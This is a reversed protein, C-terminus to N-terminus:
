DAPCFKLVWPSVKPGSYYAKPPELLAKTSNDYQVYDGKWELSYLMYGDIPYPGHHDYIRKVLEADTYASDAYNGDIGFEKLVEILDKDGRAALPLATRILELKSPKKPDIRPKLLSDQAIEALQTRYKEPTLSIAAYGWLAAYPPGSKLYDAFIREADIRRASESQLLTNTASWVASFESVAKRAANRIEENKGNLGVKVARHLGYRVESWLPVGLDEPRRSQMRGAVADLRSGLAVAIRTAVSAVSAKLDSPSLRKKFVEVAKELALKRLPELITPDLFAAVMESIIPNDIHLLHDRIAESANMDFAVTAINEALADKARSKEDAEFARALDQTDNESIDPPTASSSVTQGPGSTGKTTTAREASPAPHRIYPAVTNFAKHTAVVPNSANSGSPASDKPSLIVQVLQLQAAKTVKEFVAYQLATLREITSAAEKESDQSRQVVGSAVFSGTALVVLAVKAAAATIVFKRFRLSKTKTLEIWGALALAALSLGALVLVVWTWKEALHGYERMLKNLHDLTAASLDEPWSASVVWSIAAAVIAAAAITFSLNRLLAAVRSVLDSPQRNTARNVLAGIILLGIAIWVLQGVTLTIM